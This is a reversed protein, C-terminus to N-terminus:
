AFLVRTHHITGAVIKGLFLVAKAALAEMPKLVALGNTWNWVEIISLIWNLAARKSVRCSNARKLEDRELGGGRQSRVKPRFLFRTSAM